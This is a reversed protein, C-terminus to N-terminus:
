EATKMPIKFEHNEEPKKGFSVKVKLTDTELYNRRVKIQTRMIGNQNQIVRIGPGIVHFNNQQINTLVFNTETPQDYELYDKGNQIHIEIKKNGTEYILETKKNESKGCSYITLSTFIVLLKLLINKNMFISEYQLCRRTYVCYRSQRM